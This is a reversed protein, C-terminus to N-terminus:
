ASRVTTSGTCQQDKAVIGFADFVAVAFTEPINLMLGDLDMTIFSSVQLNDMSGDSMGLGYSSGDEVYDPGLLGRCSYNTDNCAPLKRV